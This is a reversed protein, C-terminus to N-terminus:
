KTEAPKASGNDVFQILEDLNNAIQKNAAQRASAKEEVGLPYGKEDLKLHKCIRAQKKNIPLCEFENNVPLVSNPNFDGNPYFPKRCHLKEYGNLKINSKASHVTENKTSKKKSTSNILGGDSLNNMLARNKTNQLCRAKGSPTKTASTVDKLPGDTLNNAPNLLSSSSNHVQSSVQNTTQM